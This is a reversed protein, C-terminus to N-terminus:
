KVLNFDITQLGPRLMLELGSTEARRYRQPLPPLDKPAEELFTEIQVRYPGVHLPTRFQYSGGKHVPTSYHKGDPAIIGVFYGASIPKGEYTVQGMLKAREGPPVANEGSQKSDDQKDFKEGNKKDFKEDKKTDSRKKEEKKKEDAKKEEQKDEKVKFGPDPPPPATKARIEDIAARLAFAKDSPSSLREARELATDAKKQLEPSLFPKVAVLAGQYVRYCGNHDGQENYLAAGINIADRLSRNLETNGHSRQGKEQASHASTGLLVLTVVLCPNLWWWRLTSTM